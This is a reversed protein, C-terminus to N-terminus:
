ARVPVSAKAAERAAFRERFGSLVSRVAEPDDIPAEVEKSANDAKPRQDALVALVALDVDRIISVEFATLDDRMVRLYAEIELYTIPGASMGSQRTSSLLQWAKWVHEM